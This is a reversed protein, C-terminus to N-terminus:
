GGPAAHGHLSGTGGQDHAHTWLWQGLSPNLLAVAQLTLFQTYKYFCLAAVNVGIAINCLSSRASWGAFFTMLGLTIIPLVGAPGAFHYHFVVCALALWIKRPLPRWLAWYGPLIILAFALFWYTAFIM